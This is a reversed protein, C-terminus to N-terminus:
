TFASVLVVSLWIVAAMLGGALEIGMSLAVGKLAHKTSTWALRQDQRRYLEALYVGLVFGIVLGVVPIVFFGVIGLAGGAVLATTPVEAQKMRQVPWLYKIATTAILILSVVALTVWAALSQDIAAWVAIAIWILAIGPLLPIVIGALGIAITLGVLVDLVIDGTTM